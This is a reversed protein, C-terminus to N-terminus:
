ALPAPTSLAPVSGTADAVAPPPSATTPAGAGGFCAVPMAPGPQGPIHAWARAHTQKVDVDVPHFTAPDILGPGHQVVTEHVYSSVIVAVEAGTVALATKLQSAELLRFLHVVAEGAMGNPDHHVYGSHIAMRLQIAAAPCSLRNHCRIGARLLDAMPDILAATPAHPSVVALIGDGRDEHYCSRWGIGSGDFAQQVIRYLAERIHMQILADREPRGFGAVDVAVLDRHLAAPAPYRRPEGAYNVRIGKGQPHPIEMRWLCVRSAHGPSSRGSSGPRAQAMAPGAGPPVPVPRGAFPRIRGTRGPLM